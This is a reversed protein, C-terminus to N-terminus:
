RYITILCRLLRSWIVSFCKQRRAIYRVQKRCTTIIERERCLEPFAALDSQMTFYYKSKKSISNLWGTQEVNRFQFRFSLFIEFFLAIDFIYAACVIQQDSEISRLSFWKWFSYIILRTPKTSPARPALLSLFDVKKCTLEIFIFNLSIEQLNYHIEVSQKCLMNVVRRNQRKLM